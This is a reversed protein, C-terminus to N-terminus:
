RQQFVARALEVVLKGSTTGDVRLLHDRQFAEIAARTASGLQGDAPGAPYGLTALLYQTTTVLESSSVATPSTSILPQITTRPAAKSARSSAQNQQAQLAGAKSSFSRGALSGRHCHYGGRKRDHHCGLADLGGGHALASAPLIIVVLGFVLLVKGMM